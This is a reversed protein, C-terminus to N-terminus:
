HKKKLRLRAKGTVDLLILHGPKQVVKMESTKAKLFTRELLMKEGPGPCLRRTLAGAGIPFRLTKGDFTYPGHIWNCGANGGVSGDTKFAIRPHSTFPKNWGDIYTVTWEGLVSTTVNEDGTPTVTQAHSSQIGFNTLLFLGSFFVTCNIWNRSTRKSVIM